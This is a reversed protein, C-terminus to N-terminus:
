LGLIQEWLSKRKSPVIPEDIEWVGIDELLTTEQLLERVASIAEKKSSADVQGSLEWGWKNM